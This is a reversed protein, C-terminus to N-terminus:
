CVENRLSQRKLTSVMNVRRCIVRETAHRMPKATPHEGAAFFSLGSAVPFTAAAPGVFRNIKRVLPSSGNQSAQLAPRWSPAFSNPMSDFPRTATMSFFLPVAWPCISFSRWNALWDSIAPTAIDTMWASLAAIM